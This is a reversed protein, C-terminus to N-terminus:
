NSDSVSSKVNGERTYASPSYFNLTTLRARGTNSIRHPVKKPIFLLDGKKIRVSRRGVKAVGSGSVVYLWQEARPHENEVKDSSSAGPKLSMMAAQLGPSEMLPQFAETRRLINLHKVIGEIPNRASEDHL